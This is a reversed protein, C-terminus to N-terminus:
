KKQRAHYIAFGQERLLRTHTGLAANLLNPYPLFDNAVVFLEGNLTLHAKIGMFLQEAISYDTNIGTHFPPNSIVYNFRGKIDRLGNSAVLTLQASLNNAAFTLETAKLALASDDLATISAGTHQALWAAIIGDGCGFDLIRADQVQSMFRHKSLHELLLKTGVDLKGHGFVGPLSVLTLTQGAIDQQWSQLWDELRFLSSPQSKEGCYLMCHRASDVKGVNDLLPQLKKHSSKVGSKNDGVLWVKGTLALHPLTAALLYDLLEKAKPQYLIIHDFDTATGDPLTAAFILQEEPMGIHLLQDYITKSQCWATVQLKRDTLDSHAHVLEFPFIDEPNAVLVKGTFDDISRELLLSAANLKM